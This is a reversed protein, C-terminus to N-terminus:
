GATIARRAHATAVACGTQDHISSAMSPPMVSGCIVACIRLAMGFSSGPRASCCTAKVMSVRTMSTTNMSPGGSAPM